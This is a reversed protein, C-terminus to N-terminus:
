VKPHPEGHHKRLAEVAQDVLQTAGHAHEALDAMDKASTVFSSVPHMVENRLEGLPWTFSKWKEQSYKGLEARLARDKEFIRLLHKFNLYSVLDADADADQDSRVRELVADADNGGLFGVVRGQDKGYRWRVLDALAIELGALILYLYARSPQKNFDWITVFGTIDRGDLVFLIRRSSIWEMLQAIPTDASVIAGGALSHTLDRIDTDPPVDALRKRSIYGIVTGRSTVPAYDYRSGDMRTLVKGARAHLDFTTAREIGVQLHRAQISKGLEVHPLMRQWSRSPIAGAGPARGISVSAEDHTREPPWELPSAGNQHEPRGVDSTAGDPLYRLDGTVGNAWQIWGRM